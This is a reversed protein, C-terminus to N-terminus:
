GEDTGGKAPMESAGDTDMKVESNQWRGKGKVVNDDDDDDVNM